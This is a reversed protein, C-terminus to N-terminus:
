TKDWRRNINSAEIEYWFILVYIEKRWFMEYRYCKKRLLDDNNSLYKHKKKFSVQSFRVFTLFRCITSRISIEGNHIRRNGGM